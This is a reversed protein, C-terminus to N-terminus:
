IIQYSQKPNEKIFDILEKIKFAFFDSSWEGKWQKLVQTNPSYNEILENANKCIEITEGNLVIFPTHNLKKHERLGSLNFFDKTDHRFHEKKYDM